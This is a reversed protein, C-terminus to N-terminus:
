RAPEMRRVEECDGDVDDVANAYAVDEGDGCYVGDSAGPADVTNVYDDGSGGYIVDSRAPTDPPDVWPPYAGYIADDGPGGSISDSGGLSIVLDDGGLAEIYEGGETGRLYDDDETGAPDAPVGNEFSYSASFTDGDEFCFRHEYRIEYSLEDPSNKGFVEIPVCRPYGSGGAPLSGTYVGDGDLDTLETINAGPALASFTAGAPPEGEVTLEFFLMRDESVAQQALVGSTPVVLIWLALVLAGALAVALMGKTGRIAREGNM